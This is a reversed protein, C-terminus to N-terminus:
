KLGQGRNNWMKIASEENSEVPLECGCEDCEIWRVLSCCGPDCYVLEIDEGGCFPCPKFDAKTTKTM